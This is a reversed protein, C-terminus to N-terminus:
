NQIQNHSTLVQDNKVELQELRKLITTQTKNLKAFMCKMIECITDNKVLSVKGENNTATTENSMTNTKINTVIQKRMTGNNKVIKEGGDDVSSELTLRPLSHRNLATINNPHMYDMPDHSNNECNDLVHCQLTTIIGPEINEKDIEKKEYLPHHECQEFMSSLQRKEKIPKNTKRYASAAVNKQDM